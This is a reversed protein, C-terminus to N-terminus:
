RIEPALANEARQKKGKLTDDIDNDKCCTNGM